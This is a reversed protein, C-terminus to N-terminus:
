RSRPKHNAVLSLTTAPLWALPGTTLRLLWVVELRVMIYIEDADVANSILISIEPCFLVCSRGEEEHSKSLSAVDREKDVAMAM